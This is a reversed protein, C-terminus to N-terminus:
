EDSGTAGPPPPPPPPGDPQPGHRRFRGREDQEGGFRGRAERAANLLETKDIKGDRNMDMKDFRMAADALFEARSIAGDGDTDARALAGRLGSEGAFPPPPGEKDTSQALAPSNTMALAAFALPALLKLM